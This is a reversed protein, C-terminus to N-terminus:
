PYLAVKGLNFDLTRIGEGAGTKLPNSVGQEWFDSFLRYVSRIRIDPNPSPNQSFRTVVIGCQFSVEGSVGLTTLTFVDQFRFGEPVTPDVQEEPPVVFGGDPETPDLSRFLM